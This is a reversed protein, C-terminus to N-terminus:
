TANFYGSMSYNKDDLKVYYFSEPELNSFSNPFGHKIM